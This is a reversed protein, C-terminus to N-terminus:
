LFVATDKCAPDGTKGCSYQFDGAAAGGNRWDTGFGRKSAGASEPYIRCYLNRRFVEADGAANCASSSCSKGTGKDM